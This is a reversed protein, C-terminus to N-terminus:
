LALILLTCIDKVFQRENGNLQEYASQPTVEVACQETLGNETTAILTTKGEAQGILRIEGKNNRVTVISEDASTWTIGYDSANQPLLTYKVAVTDGDTM